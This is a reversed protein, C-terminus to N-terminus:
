DVLLTVVADSLESGMFVAARCEALEALGMALTWESQSKDRSPDPSIIPRVRLTGM